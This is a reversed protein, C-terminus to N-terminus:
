KRAMQALRKKAETNGLGASKEYWEKAKDVSKPVGEGNEYLTGLDYMASPDQQDAAKQFWKAAEVDDAEAGEVGMEYMGGLRVMGDANGREAAKRYWAMATAGDQPVGETDTSYAEGLEVM